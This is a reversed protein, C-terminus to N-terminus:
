TSTATRSSTPAPPTTPTRPRPGNGSYISRIGAIDDADLAAEDGNYAPYM